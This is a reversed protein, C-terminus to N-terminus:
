EQRTRRRAILLLGGAIVMAAAALGVITTKSTDAGTAPLAGTSPSPKIPSEKTASPAPTTPPTATPPAATPPTTAPPTTPTVPPTAQDCAKNSDAPLAFTVPAFTYGPQPAATLSGDANKTWDVEATDAPISAWHVNDPGCPDTVKPQTPPTALVCPANTDAPLAFTVPAFDFGAQPAATLSGDANLTWDIKDTDEPISTWKVNDPGCPDTVSPMGPAPIVVDCPENTDAPLDFIVDGFTYGPKPSAMLSGDPNETWDVQDTDAPIQTWRVNDPGCPDTVAPRKPTAILVDCPVGSDAPLM